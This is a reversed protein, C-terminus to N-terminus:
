MDRSLLSLHLTLLLAVTPKIALPWDLHLVNHALDKPVPDVQLALNAKVVLNVPDVMTAPLVPLAPNAMMVANVLTVPKVPNVLLALHALLDMPVVTASKKASPAQLVLNAQNDLLDKPDVLALLDKLDLNDLVVPAVPNATPVLRALLDKLDVVAALDKTPKVNANLLHLLLLLLLLLLVLTEPDAGIAKLVMLVMPVLNVLLVLPVKTALAAHVVTM